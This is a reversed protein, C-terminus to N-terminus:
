DPLRHPAPPHSPPIPGTSAAARRLDTPATGRTTRSSRTGCPRDRPRRRRCPPGSRPTSRRASPGAKCSPALLRVFADLLRRQHAEGGFLHPAVHSVRLADMQCIERFGGFQSEPQVIGRPFAGGVPVTQHLYPIDHELVQIRRAVFLQDSRRQFRAHPQPRIAFQVRQQLLVRRLQRRQEDNRLHRHLPRFPVVQAYFYLARRSLFALAAPLIRGIHAAVCTERGDAQRARRRDVLNDMASPRTFAYPIATPTSASSRRLLHITSLLTEAISVTRTIGPSNLMTSESFRPIANPM